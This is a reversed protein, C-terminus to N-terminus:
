IKKHYTTLLKIWIVSQKVAKLIKCWSNLLEPNIKLPNHFACFVIQNDPLSVDKRTLTKKTEKLLVNSSSGIYCNPLYLVKETYFKKTKEPIVTKDAIIYDM